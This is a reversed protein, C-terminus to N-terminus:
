DYKAEMGLENVVCFGEKIDDSIKIRLGYLLAAAHEYPTTKKVLQIQDISESFLKDYTSRAIYITNPPIDEM